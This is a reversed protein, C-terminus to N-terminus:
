RLHSSTREGTDVGQLHWLHALPLYLAHVGPDLRHAPQALERAGDSLIASVGAPNLYGQISAGMFDRELRGDLFHYAAYFHYNLQDWNLDRGAWWSWALCALSSALM